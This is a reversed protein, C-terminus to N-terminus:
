LWARRRLGWGILAGMVVVSLFLVWHVAIWAVALVPALLALVPVRFLPHQLLWQAASPSWAYYARILREGGPVRVLVKDRFQRLLQVPPGDTDGFAASAIFCDSKALFGQIQTTRIPTINQSCGTAAYGQVIGALDFVSFRGAYDIDNEFGSVGRLSSDAPLRAVIQNQTAYTTASVDVSGSSSKRALFLLGAVPAGGSAKQATLDKLAVSIESDGPFYVDTLSCTSAGSSVFAPPERVIKLTFDSSEKMESLVPDASTSQVVNIGVRLSFEVASSATPSSVTAGTCQSFSSSDPGLEVYRCLDKLYFGIRLTTSTATIAGTFYTIGSANSQGTCKTGLVCVDPIAQARTSGENVSSAAAIPALKYESTTESNKVFLSVVLYQGASLSYSAATKVDLTIMEDTLGDAAEKSLDFFRYGAATDMFAPATPGAATDGAVWLVSSSITYPSPGTLTLAQAAPTLAFFSFGITRACFSLSKFRM